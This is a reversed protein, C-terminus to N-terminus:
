KSCVDYYKYFCLHSGMAGEKCNKNIKIKNQFDMVYVDMHNYKTCAM